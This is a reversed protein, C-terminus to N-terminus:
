PALGEGLLRSLSVLADGLPSFNQHDYVQCKAAPDFHTPSESSLLIVGADEGESVVIEDLKQRIVDLRRRLDDVTRAAEGERRFDEQVTGDKLDLAKEIKEGGLAAWQKQEATRGWTALSCRNGVESWVLVIAIDAEHEDAIRRAENVTIAKM